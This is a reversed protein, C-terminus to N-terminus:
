EGSEWTFSCSGWVEPHRCNTERGMSRVGVNRQVGRRVETCGRGAGSLCPASVGTAGIHSAGARCM